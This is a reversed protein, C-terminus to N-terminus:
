RKSRAPASLMFRAPGAWAFVNIGGTAKMSRAIEFGARTIRCLPVGAPELAIELAARTARAAPTGTAAKEITARTIRGAM